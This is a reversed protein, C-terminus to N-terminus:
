TGVRPGMNRLRVSSTYVRRRFGDAAGAARNERAQAKGGFREDELRTRTVLNLRVGRLDRMDTDQAVYDNAGTGDAQWEGADIQNNGNLDFFFAAQLDEVGEALLMNDRVLRDGDQIRYEHAPIAVLNATGTLVGLDATAFAVQLTRTAVTLQTITGCATGREPENADIVIVGGNLRFDSDNTGDGDMDYAARTPPSPELILSDVVFTMNPTTVNTAGGQIAAGDYPVIDDDPDIADGATVFLRDPAGTADVACLSAGQPVMIGAHRLDRELLDAAARLGQQSEAVQDVVTYARSSAVVSGLMYVSALGMIAAVVLLEILTFGARRAM